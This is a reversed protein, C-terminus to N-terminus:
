CPREKVIYVIERQGDGAEAFDHVEDGRGRDQKGTRQACKFLKTAAVGTPGGYLDGSRQDFRRNGRNGAQFNHVQRGERHLPFSGGGHGTLKDLLPHGPARELLTPPGRAISLRIINALSGQPADAIIGIILLSDPGGFGVLPGWYRGMHILRGSFEWALPKALGRSTATYHAM